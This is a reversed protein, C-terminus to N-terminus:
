YKSYNLAPIKERGKEKEEHMMIGLTILDKKLEQHNKYHISIIGEQAAAAVNEYRDDIFVFYEPNNEQNWTDMFCQYYEKQPKKIMPVWSCSDATFILSYVSFNPLTGSKVLRNFVSRMQNTAITIPFGQNYLTLLIDITHQRPLGKSITEKFRDIITGTPTETLLFPWDYTLYDLYNEFDENNLREFLTSLHILSWGFFRIIEWFNCAKIISWYDYWNQWFGRDVLVGDVDFMIVTNEPTLTFPKTPINIIKGNCNTINFFLLVYVVFLPINM